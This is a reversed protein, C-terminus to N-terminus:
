STHLVTVSMSYDCNFCESKKNNDGGVVDERRQLLPELLKHNARSWIELVPQTFVWVRADHRKNKETQMKKKCLLVVVCEQQLPDFCCLLMCLFNNPDSGERSRNGCLYDCCVLPTYEEQRRETCSVLTIGIYTCMHTRVYIIAVTVSELSQHPPALWYAPGRM